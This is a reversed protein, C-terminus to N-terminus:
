QRGAKQCLATVHKEFNLKNNKKIGLLTVSIESDSEYNDIKLMYSEKLKGLRNIISQFKNLNVVMENLFFWYITKESERQLANILDDVSNSSFCSRFGFWSSRKKVITKYKRM